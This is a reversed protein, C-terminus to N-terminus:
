GRWTERGSKTNKSILGGYHDGHHGGFFLPMEDRSRLIRVVSNRILDKRADTTNAPIFLAGAPTLVVKARSFSEEFWRKNDKGSGGKASVGTDNSKEFKAVEEIRKFIAEKNVRTKNDYIVIKGKATNFIDIWGFGPHRWPKKTKSYDDLGESGGPTDEATKIADEIYTEYVRSVNKHLYYQLFMRDHGPPALGMRRKDLKIPANMVRSPPAHLEFAGLEKAMTVSGALIASRHDAFTNDVTSPPQVSSPSLAMRGPLLPHAQSHWGLLGSIILVSLLRFILPSAM